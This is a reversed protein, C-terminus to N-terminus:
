TVCATTISLAGCAMVANAALGAAGIYAGAAVNVSEASPPAEPLGTTNALVDLPTHETLPAVTVMREAPVQASVAM